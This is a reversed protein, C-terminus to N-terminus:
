SAKCENSLSRTQELFLNIYNYAKVHLFGETVIWSFYFLHLGIIAQSYATSSVINKLDIFYTTNAFLLDIVSCHKMKSVYCFLNSNFLVNLCSCHPHFTHIYLMLPAALPLFHLCIIVSSSSFLSIFSHFLSKTLSCEWHM